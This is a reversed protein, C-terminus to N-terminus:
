PGRERQVAHGCHGEEFDWDGSDEGQELVEYVAHIDTAAPVDVAILDDAFEYTCGLRELPRWRLQFRPTQVGGKTILRYTSHGSPQQVSRFVIRPGDDTAAVVDDYSVGKAYFPVNALRFLGPGVREAWLTETSYGHWTNEGLEFLVKELSGLRATPQSHASNKM